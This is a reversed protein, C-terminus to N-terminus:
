WKTVVTTNSATCGSGCTVRDGSHKRETSISEMPHHDLGGLWPPVQPLADPGLLKVAIRPLATNGLDLCTSHPSSRRLTKGAPGQAALAKPGARGRRHGGRGGSGPAGRSPERPARTRQQAPAPPRDPADQLWLAFLEPSEGCPRLLSWPPCPPGAVLLDVSPFHPSDFEVHGWRATPAM